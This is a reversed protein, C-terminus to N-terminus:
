RAFSPRTPRREPRPQYALACHGPCYPRGADVASGCYGFDEAQPDGMPFHCVKNDLDSIALRPGSAIQRALEAVSDNIVRREEARRARKAQAKREARSAERRLREAAAAAPDTPLRPSAVRPPRSSPTRAQRRRNVVADGCSPRKALHLRHIKGIVANRSLGGGLLRAIQSATKGERWLTEMQEIASATWNFRQESPLLNGVAINM